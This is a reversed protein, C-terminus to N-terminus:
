ASSSLGTTAMKEPPTLQQNLWKTLSEFTEFVHPEYAVMQHPASERAIFGNAATEILISKMPIRNTKSLTLIAISGLWATSRVRTFTV